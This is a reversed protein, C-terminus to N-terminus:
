LSFVFDRENLLSLQLYKMLNFESIFLKERMVM